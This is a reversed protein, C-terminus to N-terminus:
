NSIAITEADTIMSFRDINVEQFTNLVNKIVPYPTERDAKLALRAKPNSIRTFVLWDALENKISDCPIGSQTIERREDPTLRLFPKLNVLPIGLSAITSFKDIEEDSLALNYKEDLKSIVAKRNEPGDTGFFIEGNKSVLVTM